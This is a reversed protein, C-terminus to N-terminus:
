YAQKGSANHAEAHFIGRIDENGLALAYEKIIQEQTYYKAKPHLTTYISWLNYIIIYIRGTQDECISDSLRLRILLFFYKACDIYKSVACM